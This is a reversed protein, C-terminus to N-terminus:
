FDWFNDKQKAHPKNATQAKSPQKDAKEILYNLVMIVHEADQEMVFFPTTGYLKSLQETTDM